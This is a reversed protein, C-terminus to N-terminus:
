KTNNLIGKMIKNVDEQINIVKSDIYSDSISYKKNLYGILLGLQFSIDNIPEEFRLDTNINNNM